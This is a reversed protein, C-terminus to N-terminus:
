KFLAMLHNYTIYDRDVISKNLLDVVRNKTEDSFSSNYIVVIPNNPDLTECILNNIIIKSHNSMHINYIPEGNYEIYFVNPFIGVFKRSAIFMGRFEIKHDCSMVTNVNPYNRSLSHKKFCVLFKDSIISCLLVNINKNDFTHYKTDINQIPIIGQDTVILTKEPFGTTIMNTQINKTSM